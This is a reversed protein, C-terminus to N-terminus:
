EMMEFQWLNHYSFTVCDIKKQDVYQFIGCVFVCFREVSASLLVSVMKQLQDFIINKPLPGLKKTSWCFILKSPPGFFNQSPDLM